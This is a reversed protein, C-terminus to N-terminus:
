VFNLLSIFVLLIYHLYLVQGVKSSGSFTWNHDEPNGVPHAQM